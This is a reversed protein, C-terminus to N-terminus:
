AEHETAWDSTLERYKRLRRQLNRVGRFLSTKVTGLSIGLVRSIEELKLGEFHRLLFVKRQLTPLHSLEKQILKKLEKERLQALASPADDRFQIPKEENERLEELSFIRYRNKSRWRDISENLTVRYIWSSLSSRTSDWQPLMRHLKMFVLQVVDMADAEDFVVKYAVSHVMHKFKEFFLAFTQEDGKLIAAVMEQETM